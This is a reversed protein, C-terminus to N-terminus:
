KKFDKKYTANVKLKLQSLKRDQVSDKASVNKHFESRWVEDYSIYAM